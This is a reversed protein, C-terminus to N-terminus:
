SPTQNQQGFFLHKFNKECISNRWLIPVSDSINELVGWCKYHCGFALSIYEKDISAGKLSVGQSWKKKNYAKVIRKTTGNICWSCQSQLFLPLPLFGSSTNASNAYALSIASVSLVMLSAFSRTFLTSLAACDMPRKQFAAFGFIVVLKICSWFATYMSKM